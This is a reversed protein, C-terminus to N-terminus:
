AAARGPQPRTGVAAVHGGGSGHLAVDYLRVDAAFRHAVPLDLGVWHLKGDDRHDRQRDRLTRVGQGCRGM